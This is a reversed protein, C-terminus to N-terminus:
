LLELVKQGPDSDERFSHIVDFTGTKFGRILRRPTTRDRDIANFFDRHATASQHQQYTEVVSWFREGGPGVKNIEMAYYM